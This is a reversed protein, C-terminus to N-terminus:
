MQLASISIIYVCFRFYQFYFDYKIPTLLKTVEKPCTMILIDNAEKANLEDMINLPKGYIQKFLPKANEYLNEPLVTIRRCTEEPSLPDFYPESGETMGLIERIKQGMSPKVYYFIVQMIKSFSVLVKVVNAREIVITKIERPNKPYPVKM